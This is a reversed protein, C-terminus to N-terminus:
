SDSLVVKEPTGNTLEVTIQENLKTPINMGIVAAQLPYKRHGRDVLVSVLIRSFRKLDGSKEIAKMITSGSFIVDDVIVLMCESVTYFEKQPLEEGIADIQTLNVDSQVSNQLNAQLQKALAYGRENLGALHIRTGHAEEAIQYAMRKITREIRNKDALIM